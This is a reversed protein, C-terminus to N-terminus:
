RKLVSHSSMMSKTEVCIPTQTKVITINTTHMNVVFLFTVVVLMGALFSMLM